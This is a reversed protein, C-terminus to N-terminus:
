HVEHRPVRATAGLICAWCHIGKNSTASEQGGAGLHRGCQIQFRRRARMSHRWFGLRFLVPGALSGLSKLYRSKPANWPLLTSQTVCVPRFVASSATLCIEAGFPCEGRLGHCRWPHPGNCVGLGSPAGWSSARKPIPRDPRTGPASEKQRHSYWPTAM